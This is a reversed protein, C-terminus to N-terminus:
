ETEAFPPPQDLPFSFSPARLFPFREDPVPPPQKQAAPPLPSHTNFLPPRNYQRGLPSFFPPTRSSVDTLSFHDEDLQVPPVHLPLLPSVRLTRRSFSLTLKCLTFFWKIGQHPLSLFLRTPFLFLFTFLIFRQGPDASLFSLTRQGGGGLFFFFKRFSTHKKSLLPFSGCFFFFLPLFLSGEGSARLPPFSFV